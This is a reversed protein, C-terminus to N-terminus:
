LLGDKKSSLSVTKSLVAGAYHILVKTESASVNFM